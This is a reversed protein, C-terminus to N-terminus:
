DAIVPLFNYLNILDLMCIFIYDSVELSMGWLLKLKNM